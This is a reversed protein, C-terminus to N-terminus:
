LLDSVKTDVTVRTAKLEGTIHVLRNGSTDYQDISFTGTYSAGHVDLTVDERINAPGIMNGNLDSSLAFHNLKYTFPGTKEWIGLCFNSTAPPRSSNLIETGDSHWQSFGMDVVTGDPIGTTGKSIFKVHWFGVITAGVPAVQQSQSSQASATATAAKLPDARMLLAIATNSTMPGDSAGCQARTNVALVTAVMLMGFTVAVTRIMNKM